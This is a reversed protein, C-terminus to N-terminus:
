VIIDVSSELVNKLNNELEQTKDSSSFMQMEKDSMQVNQKKKYYLSLMRTESIKGTRVYENWEETTIPNDDKYEIDFKPDNASMPLPEEKPSEQKFAFPPM